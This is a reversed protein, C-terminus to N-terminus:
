GSARTGPFRLEAIEGVARLDDDILEDGGAFVLPIQEGANDHKERMSVFALPRLMGAGANLAIQLEGRAVVDLDALGGGGPLVEMHQPALRQAFPALREHDHRWLAHQAIRGGDEGTASSAAAAELGDNGVSAVARGHSDQEAGSFDTM